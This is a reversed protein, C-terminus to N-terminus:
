KKKAKGGTLLAIATVRAQKLKRANMNHTYQNDVVYKIGDLLVDIAKKLKDEQPRNNWENHTIYMDGMPCFQNSCKAMKIKTKVGVFDESSFIEKAVAKISCIPCPKLEISM